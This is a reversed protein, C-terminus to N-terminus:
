RCVKKVSLVLFAPDALSTTPTGPKPRFGLLAYLVRPGCDVKPWIYWYVGNTDPNGAGPVGKGVDAIVDNYTAIGELFGSFRAAPLAGTKDDEPSPKPSPPAPPTPIPSPAPLPGPTPEPLPAYRREVCGNAALSALLLLAFVKIKM